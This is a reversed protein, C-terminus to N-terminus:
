ITTSDSNDYVETVVYNKGNSQCSIVENLEPLKEPDLYENPIPKKTEEAKIKGLYKEGQDQRPNYRIHQTGGITCHYIYLTM